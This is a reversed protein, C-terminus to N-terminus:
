RRGKARELVDAERMLDFCSDVKLTQGIAFLASFRIYSM